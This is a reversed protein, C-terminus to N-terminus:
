LTRRRALESVVAVGIMIAAVVKPGGYTQLASSVEPSKVFDAAGALVAIGSNVIVVFRAWVITASGKGANLVRGWVTGASEIYGSVMSYLFYVGLLILPINVVLEIKTATTM